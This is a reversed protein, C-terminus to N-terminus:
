NLIVCSQSNKFSGISVLIKIDKKFRQYDVQGEETVHTSLLDNFLHHSFAEFTTDHEVIPEEETKPNDKMTESDENTEDTNNAEPTENEEETAVETENMTPAQSVIVNKQSGCSMLLLMLAVIQLYKM